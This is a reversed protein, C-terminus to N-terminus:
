FKEILGWAASRAGLDTNRGHLEVASMFDKFDSIYRLLMEFIEFTIALRARSDHWRIIITKSPGCLLILVLFFANQKAHRDGRQESCV